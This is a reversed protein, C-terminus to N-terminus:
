VEPSFLDGRPPAPEASPPVVQLAVAPNRDLGAASGSVTVRMVYSLCAFIPAVYSVQTYEPAVSRFTFGLQRLQQWFALLAEEGITRRKGSETTVVITPPEEIAEATFASGTATEFSNREELIEVVDSWVESFSLDGPDSRLWEALAKPDMHEAPERMEYGVYIFVPIPLAGLYKEMLPQVESEFDLQGNGCGLPPFAISNIGAEAYIAVFRRLGAEVFETRSPQRWGKKTPLNLVWKHPTRYLHLRGVDLRQSECLEQYERFMKPYIQKFQLAIGKGMVGETNVTNVLVQAPSEFLNGRVYTIM